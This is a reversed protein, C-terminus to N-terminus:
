CNRNRKPRDLNVNLNRWIELHRVTAYRINKVCFDKFGKSSEQDRERPSVDDDSDSDSYSSNDFLSDIYQKSFLKKLNPM